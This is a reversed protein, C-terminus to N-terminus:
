QLKNERCIKAYELASPRIKREMTQGAQRRPLYDVEILGFRPWFGKDWEFNDLLSWYFYGKIDVGNQIAQYVWTLHEKIFKERKSDDKDALGTETIYIPKHYKKLDKLVRYIGEPYIEWGLDSVVKNKNGGLRRHFYYNLGIFDQERKIKNLFYKNWFYDVLPINEFYINNKSIGVQCDLDILHLSQYALQHARALNKLVKFYKFVSKRQPPWVGRYYSNSAYVNPENITSWFKVENFLNESIIKVYRDFYYPAKPNLWGGKKALWLPLTFHWLTVMPELGRQRLAKLVQRYHEIENQNIKGERPEIRAWEISFRHANHNLSKALDFDKEFCYYHDAARGSLYNEPELMEPFKERQWKQWYTKTKKALRGANAKEWKTWDNLNGGEVQYASTSAGWLFNNPFKMEPM